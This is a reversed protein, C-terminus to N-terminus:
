WIEFLKMLQRQILNTSSPKSNELCLAGRFGLQSVRVYFRVQKVWSNHTHQDNIKNKSSNMSILMDISNYDQEKLYVNSKSTHKERMLASLIQLNENHEEETVISWSVTRDNLNLNNVLSALNTRSNTQSCNCRKVSRHSSYSQTSRFSSSNSNNLLCVKNNSKFSSSRKFTDAKETMNNISNNLFYTEDM